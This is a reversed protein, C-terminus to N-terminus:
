RTGARQGAQQEIFREIDSARWRYSRGVLIPAPIGNSALLRAITRDSLRLVPRLDSRTLLTNLVPVAVTKTTDQLTMSFIRRESAAMVGPPAALWPPPLRQ